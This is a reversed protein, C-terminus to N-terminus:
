QGESVSALHAALRPRVVFYLVAAAGALALDISLVGLGFTALAPVGHSIGAAGGSFAHALRGLGTAISAGFKAFSAGSALFMALAAIWAAALYVAVFRWVRHDRPKPAPLSITEAMVAFTFNRPLEPIDTTLLLADVVKLEELLRACAACSRLHAATESMERPTLTGELFRDLLPECSSCRM